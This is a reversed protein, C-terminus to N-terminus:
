QGASKVNVVLEGRRPRVYHETILESSFNIRYVTLLKFHVIHTEQFFEAARRSNRSM